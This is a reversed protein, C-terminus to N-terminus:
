MDILYKRVDNNELHLDTIDSWDGIRNIFEGDKTRYFWDPHEKTLISDRSTHNIVIDMMIKMDMQHVKNVLNIFDDLNGHLPDIEYYDYISYPSGVEGKRNKIGIPHFPLLYIIDVGLNKIRELDSILGKFNMEKSHQRLFVQYITKNRLNINTNKAM